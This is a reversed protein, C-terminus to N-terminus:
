ESVWSVVRNPEIVEVWLQGPTFKIEQGSADFFKLLSNQNPKHWQCDQAGGNQFVQCQGQGDLRVDIYQDELYKSEARVVVVAAAAVQELDNRDLEKIKNRWRWYKNITPDYRFAVVSSGPYSIKLVGASAVANVNDTTPQHLYGVLNSTLRYGLKQSAILVRDQNTFGNHPKSTTNKRYFVEWPDKLADFNDIVKKDLIDLAFHSGGWHVYIADFGQALPIFDHRASRVSGIEEPLDCVYVAMMRTTGDLLVPMEVVLDASSLGSLPRAVEDSSVMLAVPRRQWNACPLGSLPSVGSQIGSDVVGIINAQRDVTTIEFSQPRYLIMIVLFLVVVFLALAIIILFRHRKFDIM